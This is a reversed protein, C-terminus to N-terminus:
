RGTICRTLVRNAGNASRSLTSRRKQLFRRADPMEVDKVLTEAKGLSREAVQLATLARPRCGNVAELAAEARDLAGITDTETDLSLQSLAGGPRSLFALWTVAAALGLVPLLAELLEPGTDPRDQGLM